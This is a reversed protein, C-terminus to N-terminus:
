LFHPRKLAALSVNLEYKTKFQHNIIGIKKKKVRKLADTANLLLCEIGCSERLYLINQLGTYEEFGYRARPQSGHLHDGLLQVTLM